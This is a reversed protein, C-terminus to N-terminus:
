LSKAITELPLFLTRTEGPLGLFGYGAYFAGADHDIPHVLLCRAGIIQSAGIVRKFADKLLGRGIGRGQFEKDVALRALIM